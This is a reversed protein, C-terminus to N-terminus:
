FRWHVTVRFDDLGTRLAFQPTLGTAHAQEQKRQLDSNKRHAKWAAHVGSVLHNVLVFGVFMESRSFSQASRRRTNSYKQLNSVTDWRWSHTAPDYLSNVDRQRLTAQNYEEVNEYNGIDVFYKDSKGALDVGAHSAAFLRYDDKLWHGYVNNAIVGMWLVAEAVFFNRASTSAGAYKQGWGPLVASRIFASGISLSRESSDEYSPALRLAATLNVVAPAESATTDSSPSAAFAEATGFCNMLVLLALPAITFQRRLRVPSLIIMM